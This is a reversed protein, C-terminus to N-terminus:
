QSVNATNELSLSWLFILAPYCRSNIKYIERLHTAEIVSVPFAIHIWSLSSLATNHAFHNVLKFGLVSRTWHVIWTECCPFCSFIGRLLVSEHQIIFIQALNTFLQYFLLKWVSSLHLSLVTVSKWLAKRTIQSPFLSTIATLKFLEADASIILWYTLLYTIIWDAWDTWNYFFLPHPLFVIKFFNRCKQKPTYM